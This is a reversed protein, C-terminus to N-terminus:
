SIIGGGLVCGDDDYFVVSQGPAPAKVADEFTVRVRGESANEIQARAGGHQYRIKALCRLKEGTELGPIALFNLEDCLLEKKLLSEERGIVVENRDARLEKVYAPYGLPLGLGRRQGVTYHIVGRHTGIIRGEEDVFAGEGPLPAKANDRIYDAYGGDTVFCIEQSDPKTAVPIGAQAAIDRVEQKAYEGLPMRTKALQEQALRYLMYTQDKEAHLSRKVTYRGNPLLLVSAYHGTAVHDAGEERAASLLAEWKVLPNCLVCPNPTTGRLYADVFPETVRDRFADHCDRVHHVIGLADAVRRADEIEAARRDPGAGPDWTRMTVGIVEYGEQKLLYATVSSDVGGSMGVVVKKM